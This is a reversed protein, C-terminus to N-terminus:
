RMMEIVVTLLCPLLLIARLHKMAQERNAALFGKAVQNRERGRRGEVVGLICKPQTRRKM